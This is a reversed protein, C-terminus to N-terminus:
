QSTGGERGALAAAQEVTMMLGEDWARRADEESLHAAAEAAPDGALLGGIAGPPGGIRRRLSESAGALRIADENRGQWTALFALGTLAIGLGTPNDAERFM